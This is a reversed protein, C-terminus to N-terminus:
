AGRGSGPSPPAWAALGPLTLTQRKYVDLHTYSVTVVGAKETIIPMTFPDWEAIRDGKSVIHGDGVLLHAGYPIRHTARERGDMDLIAIEGNRALAIRRGRSDEIVPLDRFQRKYVDLHTYSVSRICTPKM